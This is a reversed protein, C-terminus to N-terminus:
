AMGVIEDYMRDELPDNEVCSLILFSISPPSEFEEADYTGGYSYSCEVRIFEESDKKATISIVKFDLDGNEYDNVMEKMLDDCIQKLDSDSYDYPKFLDDRDDFM